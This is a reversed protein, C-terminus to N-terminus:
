KKLKTQVYAAIHIRNIGLVIYHPFKKLNFCEKRRFHVKLGLHM